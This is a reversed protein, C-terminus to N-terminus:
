SNMNPEIVVVGDSKVYKKWYGGVSTTCKSENSHSLEWYHIIFFAVEGKWRNKNGGGYYLPLDRHSMKAGKRIIKKNENLFEGEIRITSNSQHDWFEVELFVIEIEQGIGNVISFEGNEVMKEVNDLKSELNKKESTVNKNEVHVKWMENGGWIFLAIMLINLVSLFWITKDKRLIRSKKNITTKPAPEGTVILSEVLSSSSHQEAQSVEDDNSHMNDVPFQLLAPLKNTTGTEEELITNHADEIDSIRKQYKEKLVISPANSLLLTYKNIAAQYATTADGLSHGATLELVERAKKITMDTLKQYIPELRSGAHYASYGSYRRASL